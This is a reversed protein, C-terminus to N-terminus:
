RSGAAPLPLVDIPKGWLRPMVFRADDLPGSTYFTDTGQRSATTSLRNGDLRRVLERAVAASPDIVAVGPGAVERILPELFPYHTCGLVLTDVHKELLPAIYRVLLARTEASDLDGREVQEVLGPCPQLHVQLHAAHQAVLRAVNGSALTARTALVGIVGTRTGAAAPKIAPEIAVIPVPSWSRLKEVAVVTATNCAITIAKVNAELLFRVVASARGEIFESPQDGYPAHGSDAVYLLNEQPLARRIERLVSLGGVGSDFVGIPRDADNM